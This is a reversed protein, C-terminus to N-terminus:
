RDLLGLGLDDSVWGRDNADDCGKWLMGDAAKPLVALLAEKWVLLLWPGCAPLVHHFAGWCLCYCRHMPEVLLSAAGVHAVLVAHRWWFSAM